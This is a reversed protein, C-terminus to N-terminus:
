EVQWKSPMSVNQLTRITDLLLVLSSGTNILSSILPKQLSFANLDLVLYWVPQISFDFLLIPSEKFPQLNSLLHFNHKVTLELLNLPDM